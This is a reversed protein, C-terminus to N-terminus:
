YQEPGNLTAVRFGMNATGASVSAKRSRYKDAKIADDVSINTVSGSASSVSRPADLLEDLKTDIDTAM